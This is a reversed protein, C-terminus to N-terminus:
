SILNQMRLQFTYETLVFLLFVGHHNVLGARPIKRVPYLHQQPDIPLFDCLFTKLTRYHLENKM